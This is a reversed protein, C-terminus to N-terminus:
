VQQAAANLIEPRSQNRRSPAQQAPEGYSVPRFVIGDTRLSNESVRM